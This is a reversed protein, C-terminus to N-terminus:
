KPRSSLSSVPQIEPDFYLFKHINVRYTISIIRSKLEILYVLSVSLSADRQAIVHYYEHRTFSADIYNGFGEQINGPGQFLCTQIEALHKRSIKSYLKSYLLM